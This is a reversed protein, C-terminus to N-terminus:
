LQKGYKDMVTRYDSLSKMGLGRQKKLKYIRPCDSLKRCGYDTLWNLLRGSFVEHIYPDSSEPTILEYDKILKDALFSKNIAYTYKDSTKMEKSEKIFDDLLKAKQQTTNM